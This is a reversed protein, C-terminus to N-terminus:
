GIKFSVVDGEELDFLFAIQNKPHGESGMYVYDVHPKCPHSNLEISLEEGVFIKEKPLTIAEGTKYGISLEENYTETSLNADLEVTVMRRIGNVLQPVKITAM